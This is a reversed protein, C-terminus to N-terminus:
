NNEKIFYHYAEAILMLNTFDPVKSRKIMEGLNANKGGLISVDEIGYENFRMILKNEKGATM